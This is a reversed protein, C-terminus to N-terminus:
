EDKVEFLESDKVNQIWDETIDLLEALYPGRGVELCHARIIELSELVEARQQETEFLEM